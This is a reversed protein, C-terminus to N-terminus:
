EEASSTIQYLSHLSNLIDQNDMDKYKDKLRQQYYKADALMGQYKERTAELIGIQSKIDSIKGIIESVEDQLKSIQDRNGRRNLTKLREIEARKAALKTELPEKDAQLQEIQPQIPNLQSQLEDCTKQYENIYSEKTKSIDQYRNKIDTIEERERESLDAPLLAPNDPETFIYNEIQALKEKTIPIKTVPTEPQSTSSERERERPEVSREPRSLNPTATELSGEPPLSIKKEKKVKYLSETNEKTDPQSPYFNFFVIIGLLSVFVMTVFISFRTM